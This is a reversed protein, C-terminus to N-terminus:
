YWLKRTKKELKCVCSYIQNEETECVLSGLNILWRFSAPFSRVVTKWKGKKIDGSKWVRKLPQPIILTKKQSNEKGKPKRVDNVSLSSVNFFPTKLTKFSGRKRTNGKRKKFKEPLVCINSDCKQLDRWLSDLRCTWELSHFTFSKRVLEDAIKVLKRIDHRKDGRHQLLFEEVISMFPQLSAKFLSPQSLVNELSEDQYDLLKRTISSLTKNQRVNTKPHRWIAESWFFKSFQSSEMTVLQDFWQCHQASVPDVQTCFWVMCGIYRICASLIPFFNLVFYKHDVSVTTKGPLHLVKVLRSIVDEIPPLPVFQISLFIALNGAIDQLEKATPIKQTDFLMYMDYYLLKMDPKLLYQASMYPIHGERCWRIIDMLLFEEKALLVALYLLGLLKRFNLHFPKKYRLWRKQNVSIHLVKRQVKKRQVEKKCSGTRSRHSFQSDWLSYSITSDARSEERLEKNSSVDEEMESPCIDYINTQKEIWRKVFNNRCVRRPEKALSESESQSCNLSQGYSMDDDIFSSEHKGAKSHMFTSSMVSQKDSEEQHASNGDICSLDLETLSRSLELSVKSSMATSDKGSKMERKLREHDLKNKLKELKSVTEPIKKKRKLSRVSLTSPSVSRQRRHILHVDRKNPIISMKPEIHSRCGYIRPMFAIEIRHLYAVWLKFVTEKFRPSAGLGCLAKTWEHLIVNFADYTTWSNLQEEKHAGNHVEDDERTRIFCSRDVENLFGESRLEVYGQQETGCQNCIKIGCDVSFSTGECDRCKQSMITKNGRM